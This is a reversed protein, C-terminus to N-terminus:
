KLVTYVKNFGELFLWVTHPMALRFNSTTIFSINMTESLSQGYLAWVAWASLASPGLICECFLEEQMTVIIDYFPTFPGFFTRAYLGKIYIKIGMPFLDSLEFLM